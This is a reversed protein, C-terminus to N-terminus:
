HSSGVGSVFGGVFDAIERGVSPWAEEPPPRLQEPRWRRGVHARVAAAVHPDDASVSLWGPKEAIYDTIADGGPAAVLAVRAVPLTLYEVVKSPLQAPDVNGVVLALDLERRSLELVRSWALPEHVRVHVDRRVGELTRNWDSGFQEFAISRWLGSDCLRELFPALRVRPYYLNGFHGIRLNGDPRRIPLGPAVDTVPQYGNARVLTRLHPFRRSLAERQRSTTLIAGAAVRWLRAEARRARSLAVKGMTPNSATLAWPDSMDVVIPVADASLARAAEVAPSFPYGVVLVLDPRWRWRRVRRKSWAEHLDIGFNEHVKYKAFRAVRGGHNATRAAEHPPGGVLTVDWAPRLADVIARTRLGRPAFPHYAFYSVVAITPRAVDVVTSFAGGDATARAAGIGHEGPRDASISTVTGRPEETIGLVGVL